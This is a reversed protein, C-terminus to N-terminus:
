WPNDAPQPTMVTGASLDAPFVQWRKGSLLWVARFIQFVNIPGFNKTIM